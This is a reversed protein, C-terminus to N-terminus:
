NTKDRFSGDLREKLNNNIQEFIRKSDNDKQETYSVPEYRPMIYPFLKVLFDLREKPEAKDLTEDLRAVENTLLDKLMLRLDKTVKNPTGKQRGGTKTGKAM